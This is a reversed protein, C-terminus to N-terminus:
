PLPSVGIVVPHLWILAQFLAGAAVLRLADCAPASKFIRGIPQQRVEESLAGWNSGLERQKRKDVLRGGFTAFAGFAGFLLAHAMDGNAILHALSWLALALLLPHRTLRVLGPRQPDFTENRVGGFSFPNPRGLALALVACALVMIALALHNQWAAWPWLPIHPARGAEVILLALVGVSLASYTLTFGGQGLVRVLATRLPPRVPLLHSLFFFAFAAIFGTWGM